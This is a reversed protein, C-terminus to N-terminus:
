SENFFYKGQGIARGTCKKIEEAIEEPTKGSKSALGVFYDYRHQLEEPLHRNTERIADETDRM